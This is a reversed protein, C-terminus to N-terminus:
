PLTKRRSQRGSLFESTAAVESSGLCFSFGTAALDRPFSSQGLLGAEVSSNLCM